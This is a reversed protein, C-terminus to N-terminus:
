GMVRHRTNGFLGCSAACVSQLARTVEPVREKCIGM